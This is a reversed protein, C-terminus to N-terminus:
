MKQGRREILVMVPTDVIVILKLLVCLEVVLVNVGKRAHIRAPSKTAYSLINDGASTIALVVDETGLNLL